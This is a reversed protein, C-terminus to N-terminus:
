GSVVKPHPGASKVLAAIQAANVLVEVDDDGVVRGALLAVGGDSGRKDPGGAASGSGGAAVVGRGDVVAAEGPELGRPRATLEARTVILAEDGIFTWAGPYPAAARVRRVVSAAERHWDLQLLNDDPTPAATAHGEDQPREFPREGRAFAEVLGRLLSLSPPDLSRALTWADWRPDIKLTRQGLIRM